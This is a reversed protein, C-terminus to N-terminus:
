KVPVGGGAFAAAMGAPRVDGTIVAQRRQWFLYAVVPAILALGVGFEDIIYATIGPCWMLGLGYSSPFSHTAFVLYYFISSLAFTLVVFVTIKRVPQGNM